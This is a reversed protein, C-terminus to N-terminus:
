KLDWDLHGREEWGERVYARRKAEGGKEKSFPFIRLVLGGQCM